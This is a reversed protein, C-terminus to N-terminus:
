GSWFSIWSRDGYFEPSIQIELDIQIELGIQTTLSTQVKTLQFIIKSPMSVDEIYKLLPPEHAPHSAYKLKKAM